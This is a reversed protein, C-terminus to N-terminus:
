TCHALSLIMRSLGAPPASSTKPVSPTLLPVRSLICKWELAGHVTCMWVAPSLVGLSDMILVHFETFLQIFM